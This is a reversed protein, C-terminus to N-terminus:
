SNWLDATEISLDDNIKFFDVKFSTSLFMNNVAYNNVEDLSQFPERRCAIETSRELTYKIAEEESRHVSINGIDLDFNTTFVVLILPM